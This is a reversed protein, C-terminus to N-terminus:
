IMTSLLYSQAKRNKKKQKRKLLNPLNLMRLRLRTGQIPAASATLDTLEDKKQEEQIPEEVPKEEVPKEEIVEEPKTEEVHEVPEEKPEEIVIDQEVPKIIEFRSSDVEKEEVPAERPEVAWPDANWEDIGPLVCVEISVTDLKELLAKGAIDVIPYIGDPGLELRVKQLDNENLGPM